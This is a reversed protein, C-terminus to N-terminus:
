HAAGISRSSGSCVTAGGSLWGGAAPGRQRPQLVAEPQAPGGKDQPGTPPLTTYARAHSSDFVAAKRASLRTGLGVGM